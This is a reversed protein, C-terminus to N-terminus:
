LRANLIRRVWDTILLVLGALALLQWIPVPRISPMAAGYGGLFALAKWVTQEVSAFPAPRASIVVPATQMASGAKIGFSLSYEGPAPLALQGEYVGTQSQNLSITRAVSDPGTYSGSVAARGVPKGAADWLRLSVPVDKGAIVLGPSRAGPVGTESPSLWLVLRQWFEPPATNDLTAQSPIEPLYYLVQGSGFYSTVLVPNNKGDAALVNGVAKAGSVRYNAVLFPSIGALLPHSPARFVAKTTESVQPGSINVPLLDTIKTKGTSKPISAGVMVLNGGGAVYDQLAKLTRDDYALNPSIYPSTGLLFGPPIGFTGYDVAGIGFVAIKGEGYQRAIGVVANDTAVPPTGHGTMPGSNKSDIRLLPQWNSDYGVFATTWDLKDFEKGDIGANPFLGGAGYIDQLASLGTKQVITKGFVCSINELAGLGLKDRLLTALNRQLWDAPFPRDGYPPHHYLICYPNDTGPPNIALGGGAHLLILLRGGKNVYDLLRGGDQPKIDATAIVVLGYDELNDPLTNTGNDFIVGHETFLSELKSRNPFSHWDTFYDTYVQLNKATHLAVVDYRKLMDAAMPLDEPSIVDTHALDGGLVAGLYSKGGGYEALLVRPKVVQVEFDARSATDSQVLLVPELLALLILVLAVWSLRTLSLRRRQWVAMALVAAIAPLWWLNPLLFAVIKM